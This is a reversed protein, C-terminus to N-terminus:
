GRGAEMNITAEDLHQLLVRLQARATALSATNCGLPHCWCGGDLNSGDPATAILM